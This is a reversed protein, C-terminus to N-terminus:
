WNLGFQDGGSTKGRGGKLPANRKPVAMERPAEDVEEEEPKTSEKQPMPTAAKLSLGIRQAERDVSTVKVEVEEGEKVVNRVQFVRHHALESIHILGEVGPELKVFAGFQATRSVVGTVSAGVSYKEEVTDWPNELTDRYSLGIKGTDPDIKEIKVKVKQGETFIQNPHEIRDWSMKSIHILGEIGGMDVFAGFDKLSRIVGDHMQGVEIQEMKEQREAERERELYARHSLVLNRRSENAETVVCPLKQDIYDDFVEVRHLAVQSAPIFGRINNVMCELGGTNIGTIRADIVGGENIDSWDAVSVSGGPVTVEYLGEDANFRVVTVELKDGIEPPTKFQALSAFGENRGGLSFFADDRHMRVITGECKTEPALEESETSDGTMQGAMMQDFSKDGFAAAVEDDLSKPIESLNVPKPQPPASPRKPADIPTASARPAVDPAGGRQSGIQPSTKEADAPAASPAGEDPPPSAPASETPAAAPPNSSAEPQPLSAPNSENEAPTQPDTM